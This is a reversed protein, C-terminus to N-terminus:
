SSLYKFINFDRERKEVAESLDCSKQLPKRTKSRLDLKIIEGSGKPM